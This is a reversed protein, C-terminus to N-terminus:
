KSSNENIIDKLSSANEEMFEIFPVAEKPIFEKKDFAMALLGNGFISVAEAYLCDFLENVVDRTDFKKKNKKLNNIASEALGDFEFISIVDFFEGYEAFTSTYNWGGQMSDPYFGLNELFEDIDDNLIEDIAEENIIENYATDIIQKIWETKDM